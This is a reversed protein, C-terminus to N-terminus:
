TKTIFFCRGNCQKECFTSGAAILQWHSPVLEGSSLVAFCLKLVLGTIGKNFDIGQFFKSKGAVTDM